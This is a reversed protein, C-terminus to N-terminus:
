PRVPRGVEELLRAFELTGLTGPMLVVAQGPRLHPACARAFPRHAYAPVILLVLENRALAEGLNTTVERLRAAGRAAVGDLRVERTERIPELTWGFEPVEALTVEVGRLALNAAVAFGTNGGGLVTVATM